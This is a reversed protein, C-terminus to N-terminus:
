NGNEATLHDGNETTLHLGNETTLHNEGHPIAALSANELMLDLKLDLSDSM